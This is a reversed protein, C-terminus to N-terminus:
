DAVEFPGQEQKDSDVRGASVPGVELGIIPIELLVHVEWESSASRGTPIERHEM